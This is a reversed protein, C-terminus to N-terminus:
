IISYITTNQTFTLKPKIELYKEERRNSDERVDIM